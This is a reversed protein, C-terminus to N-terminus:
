DSREENGSWKGACINAWNKTILEEENRRVAEEKTTSEENLFLVFTVNLLIV